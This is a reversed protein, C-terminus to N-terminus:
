QKEVYNWCRFDKTRIILCITANSMHLVNRFMKRVFVCDKCINASKNNATARPSVTFSLTQSCKPRSFSSLASPEQSLHVFFFVFIRKPSSQKNKKFVRKWCMLLPSAHMSVDGHHFSVFIVFQFHGSCCTRREIKTLEAARFNSIPKWSSQIHAQWTSM